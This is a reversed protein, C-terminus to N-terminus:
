TKANWCMLFRALALEENAILEEVCRQMPQKQQSFISELIPAFRIIFGLFGRLRHCVSVDLGFEADSSHHLRQFAQLICTKADNTPPNQFKKSRTQLLLHRLTQTQDFSDFFYREFRKVTLLRLAM